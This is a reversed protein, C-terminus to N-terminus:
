RITEFLSQYFAREEETPQEHDSFILSCDRADGFEITNWWYGAQGPSSTVAYQLTATRSVGEKLYVREVNTVNTEFDPSPTYEDPCALSAVMVGNESFNGPFMEDAASTGASTQFKWNVPHSFTLGMSDFTDWGPGLDEIMMSNQEAKMMAADAKMVSEDAKMMAADAKQVSEMVNQEIRAIGSTSTQVQMALYYVGGALLIVGGLLIGIFINQITDKNM